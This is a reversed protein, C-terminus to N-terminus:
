RALRVQLRRAGRPWGRGERGSRRRLVSHGAGLVGTAGRHCPGPEAYGDIARALEGRRPRNEGRAAAEGHDADHRKHRGVVDGIRDGQQRRDDLGGVKGRVVRMQNPHEGNRRLHKSHRSVNRIATRPQAASAGRPPVARSMSIPGRVATQATRAATIAQPM